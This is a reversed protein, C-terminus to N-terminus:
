KAGGEAEAEAALLARARGMEYARQLSAGIVSIRAVRLDPLMIINMGDVLTRATQSFWDGSPVDGGDAASPAPTAPGGCLDLIMAHENPM